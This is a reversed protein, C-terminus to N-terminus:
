IAIVQRGQSSGPLVPRFRTRRLGIGHAACGVAMPQYM